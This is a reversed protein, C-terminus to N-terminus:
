KRKSSVLHQKMLESAPQTYRSSYYWVTVPRQKPPCAASPQTYAISSMTKNSVAAKEAVRASSTNSTSPRTTASPAPSTPAANAASSSSATAISFSSSAPSSM